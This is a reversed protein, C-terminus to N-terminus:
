STVLVCSNTFLIEVFMLQLYKCNSCPRCVKASPKETPAKKKVGKQRQKPPFWDLLDVVTAWYRRLSLKIVVEGGVAVHQLKGIIHKIDVRNRKGADKSELWEVAIENAKRPM